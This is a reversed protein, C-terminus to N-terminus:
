EKKIWSGTFIVVIGIGPIESIFTPSFEPKFSSELM